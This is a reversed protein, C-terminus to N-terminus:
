RCEARHLQNSVTWTACPHTLSGQHPCMKQVTFSKDGRKWIQCRTLSKRNGTPQTPEPKDDELPCGQCVRISEEPSIYSDPLSIGELVPIKETDDEFFTSSGAEVSPSSTGESTCDSSLRSSVLPPIEPSSSIPTTEMQDDWDILDLDSPEGNYAKDWENPEDPQALCPDVRFISNEAKGNGRKKNTFKSVEDGPKYRIPEMKNRRKGM